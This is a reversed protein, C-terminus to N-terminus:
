PPQEDRNQSPKATTKGAQWESYRTAIAVRVMGVSMLYTAM